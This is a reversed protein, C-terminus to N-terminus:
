IKGMKSKIYEINKNNLKNMKIYKLIYKKDYKKNLENNLLVKIQNYLFDQIILQELEKENFIDLSTIYTDFEIEKKLKCIKEFTNLQIEKIISEIENYDYDCNVKRLTDEVIKKNITNTNLVYEKINELYNNKIKNKEIFEFYEFFIKYQKKDQNIKINNINNDIDKLSKIKVVNEKLNKIDFSFNKTKSYDLLIIQKIADLSLEFKDIENKEVYFEKTIKNFYFINIEKDQEIKKNIEENTLFEIKNNTINKYLYKETSQQQNSLLLTTIFMTSILIKKM